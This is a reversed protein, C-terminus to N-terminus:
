QTPTDSAADPNATSTSGRQEVGDRLVKLSATDVSARTPMPGAWDEIAAEAEENSLECERYDPNLGRANASFRREAAQSIAQLAAEADDLADSYGSEYEDTARDSTLGLLWNANVGPMARIIRVLTEFSPARHGAEIHSLMAPEIAARRCLERQSMELGDRATKLRVAFDRVDSM